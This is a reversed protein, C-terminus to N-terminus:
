RGKYWPLAPASEIKKLEAATAKTQSATAQVQATLANQEDRTVNHGESIGKKVLITTAQTKAALANYEDRTVNHGESVSSAAIAYAKDATVRTQASAQAHQAVQLTLATLASQTLASSAALRKLEQDNHTDQRSLRGEYDLKQKNLTNNFNFQANEYAEYYTVGVIMGLGLIVIVGLLQMKSRYGSVVQPTELSGELPHASEKSETM